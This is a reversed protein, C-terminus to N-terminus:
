SGASDASSIQSLCKKLRATRIFTARDAYDQIADLVRLRSELTSPYFDDRMYWLCSLRNEDILEDIERAIEPPTCDPEVPNTEDSM